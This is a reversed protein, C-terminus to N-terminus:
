ERGAVYPGFDIGRRAVNQAQEAAHREADALAATAKDYEARAKDLTEAAERRADHATIADAIALAEGNSDLLARVAERLVVRLAESAPRSVSDHSFSGRRSASFYSAGKDLDRPDFTATASYDIGRVTLYEHPGQGYREGKEQAAVHGNVNEACITASDHVRVAVRGASTEVVYVPKPRFGIFPLARVAGTSVKFGSGM